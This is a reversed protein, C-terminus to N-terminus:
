DSTTLRPIVVRREGEFDTDEPFVFSPEVVFGILPDIRTRESDRLPVTRHVVVVGAADILGSHVQPDVEKTDVDVGILRFRLFVVIVVM